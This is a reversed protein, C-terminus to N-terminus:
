YRIWCTQTEVLFQFTHWFVLSSLRFLFSRTDCDSESIVSINSRDFLFNLIIVILINLARMSFTSLKFFCILLILLTISVCIFLFKLLLFLTIFFARLPNMLLCSVTSSLILSWSSLDISIRWVLICLSSFFPLHPPPHSSLISM